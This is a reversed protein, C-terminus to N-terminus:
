KHVEESIKLYRKLIDKQEELLGLQEEMGEKKIKIEEIAQRVNTKRKRVNRMHGTVRKGKRRHSRIKIPRTKAM